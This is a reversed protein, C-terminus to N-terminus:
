LNRGNFLIDEEKRAGDALIDGITKTLLRGLISDLLGRLIGLRIAKDAVEFFAVVRHNAFATHSKGATLALADGNRTRQQGIRADEDEVVRGAGDITRGLVFDLLGNM